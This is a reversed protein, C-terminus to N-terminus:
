DSASRSDSCSADTGRLTLVSRAAAIAQLRSRAQLKQMIAKVHVRATNPSIGLTAAISATSCGGELLEFVELERTTLRVSSPRELRTADVLLVDSPENCRRMMAIITPVSRDSSVIARVGARRADNEVDHSLRDVVMLMSTAPKVKEAVVITSRADASAVVVRPQMGEVLRLCDGTTLVLGCVEVGPTRRLVEEFAEAFLRQKCFLAVSLTENAADATGGECQRLM